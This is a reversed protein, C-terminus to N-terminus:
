SDDGVGSHKMSDEYTYIPLGSGMSTGIVRPKGLPKPANAGIPFDKIERKAEMM